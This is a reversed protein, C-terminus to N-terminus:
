IEQKVEQWYDIMRLVYSSGTINRVEDLQEMIENVAILACQKAYELKIARLGKEDTIRRFKNVLELAVEEQPTM